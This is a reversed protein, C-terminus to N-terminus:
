VVFSFVILGSDIAIFLGINALSFNYKPNIVRLDGEYGRSQLSTFLAQSKIFAKGWLNAFLLGFSYMSRKFNCHGWRSSQATYINFATEVFVFVFRYMLVMLEVVIVPLKLLQLVYITEVMPITLTLFYLCAVTSFSKILTAGALSISAKTIGVYYPGIEVRYLMEYNVTSINVAMTIVGILLFSIPVLMLKFVVHGPIKAKFVLLGIMILLAMAHVFPRNSILCILMTFIAFVFREVPHNNRLKNSYVFQDIYLM